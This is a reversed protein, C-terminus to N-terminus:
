EQCGATKLSVCVSCFLATEPAGRGGGDEGSPNGWGRRVSLFNLVSRWGPVLEAADSFSYVALRVSPRVNEVDLLTWGRGGM